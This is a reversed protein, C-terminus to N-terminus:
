APYSLAKVSQQYIAQPSLFNELALMGATLAVVALIGYIYFKTTNAM